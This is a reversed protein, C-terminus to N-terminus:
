YQNASSAAGIDYATDCVRRSPGHTSAHSLWPHQAKPYRLIHEEDSAKTSKFALATVQRPGKFSRYVLQVSAAKSYIKSLTGLQFQSRGKAHSRIWGHVLWVCLKM